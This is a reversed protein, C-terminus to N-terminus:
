CNIRKPVHINFEKIVHADVSYRGETSECVNRFSFNLHKYVYRKQYICATWVIFAKQYAACITIGRSAYTNNRFKWKKKLDSASKRGILVRPLQMVNKWLVACVRMRFANRLLKRHWIDQGIGQTGNGYSGLPPKHIYSSCFANGPFPFYQGRSRWQVSFITINAYQRWPMCLTVCLQCCFM